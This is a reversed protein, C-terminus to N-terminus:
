INVSILNRKKWLVGKGCHQQLIKLPLREPDYTVRVTEAHGTNEHKVQEYTPAITNGNAFGGQNVNSRKDTFCVKRCGM